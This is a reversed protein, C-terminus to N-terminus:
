EIRLLKLVQNIENSKIKCYFVGAKDKLQSSNILISNYGAQLPTTESSVMKGSADFIIITALGEQSQYLGIVTGDKFPNPSNQVLYNQQNVMPKKFKLSLPMTLLDNDYAEPKLKNTSLQLANTTPMNKNASVIVNFIIDGDSLDLGNVKDFSFNVYARGKEIYHHINEQRLPLVGAEVGKFEIGNNLELTFQIGTLSMKHDIRVPIDTLENKNLNMDEVTLTCSADTRTQAIGLLGASVTGNVDGTKIAIFDSGNMNNVVNEYLLNDKFLWPNGKDDFKYQADAFRWAPTKDNFNQNVGLILKRLESLDSATVSNSGNVDAAIIKYPSDLLELGLIHRQIMVIDMTSIGDLPNDNKQPVIQYDNFMQLNEFHYHGEKDTMFKGETEGGELVIKVDTVMAKEETYVSGNIVIRGSTGCVKDNDQIEVFTVTKSQNGALDTVWLEVRRRGLSDCTYTRKTDNVDTSFSFKLKNSPTCNDNSGNNFDSAWVDKMGPRMLNTALGNIAIPTPAKCDKVTFLFSCISTNGCGDTAEWTMKHKGMPYSKTVSAGTGIYEPTGGDNNIDIKYKWTIKVPKCDDTGSATFTVNEATCGNGTCIITDRCVKADIVPPVTNKLYINQVFTWKGKSSPNNKDYQCWDLVTWTRRIANCSTPHAFVQDSYSAAAMSCHDNNILPRGTNAPDPVTGACANVEVNEVPWTIDSLDLPDKDIVYITQTAKTTNGGNDTIVFDRYIKGVNCMTLASRYTSTVTTGPCNDAYLGDKGAKGSPPYFTNPDSIIIDHRTQGTTVYTGFVSLNNLDLPFECSISIDPLLESIVPPLKDQVTVTTMCETFNGHIDTVRLVVTITKGVDDCCFKVYNGLVDPTSEGCKNGMRRGEYTLIGGCNDTAEKILFSAPLETFDNFNVVLPDKCVIDPGLKDKATVTVTCSATLGANDTVTFTFVHTQGHSSSIVSGPIPTQTVSAIGCNDTSIVQGTLDPVKLMCNNNLTVDQPSPCIITPRQNDIVTVKQTCTATNGNADTVTWTVSNIGIAFKTTRDVQVGNLTAIDSLVGCNDSVTPGGLDVNTAYCKDLDTNVSIDVPCTIKPKENDQVTVTQSCSATNGHIDTVTWIVINSGLSFETTNTVTVGNLVPITSRVGCNDAVTPTGLNVNTAHCVGVDTSVTINAPCIITPKEVDIVTVNQSCSAKNGGLDTVTWVVVGSGVPIETSSTVPVGNYTIELPDIILCNDSVTPTGFNINTASCKGPDNNVTIDAPCTITPITVDRVTVTSTCTSSNGCVDTVILVVQAQGGAAVDNCGFFLPHTSSFTLQGDCNDTSGNDLMDATIEAMGSGDLDVTIDKCRATPAVNDKIIIIQYCTDRNGSNDGISYYRRITKDHLCRMNIVSDRVFAFSTSDLQTEDSVSGGAVLFEDLDSYPLPATCTTKITDPCTIEPPTNDFVIINMCCTASNNNKDTATWCVLTSGIPYCGSADNPDSSYPSNHVITIMNDPTCNDSAVPQGVDIHTFGVACKNEFRRGDMNNGVSVDDPCSITPVLHDAITINEICIAQNTTGNNCMETVNWTIQYMGAQWFGLNISSPYPPSLTVVTGGPLTYSLFVLHCDPSSSPTNVIVEAECDANADLILSGPCTIADPSLAQKFYFSFAKEKLNLIQKSLDSSFSLGLIMIFFSFWLILRQNM